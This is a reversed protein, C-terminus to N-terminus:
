KEKRATSHSGGGAGELTAAKDGKLQRLDRRIAYIVFCLVVVIGISILIAAIV